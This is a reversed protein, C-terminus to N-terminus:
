GGPAVCCRILNEAPAVLLQLDKETLVSPTLKYWDIIRLARELAGDNDGKIWLQRAEQLQQYLQKLFQENAIEESISPGREERGPLRLCCQHYLVRADISEPDLTQVEKFDNLAELYRGARYHSMGRRLAVVALQRRTIERQDFREMPELSQLRAAERAEEVLSNRSDLYAMLNAVTQELEDNRGESEELDLRLSALRAQLDEVSQSYESLTPLTQLQRTLALKDEERRAVSRWHPAVGILRGVEAFWREAESLRGGHSEILGLGIAARARLDSAASEDAYVQRYLDRAHTADDQLRHLIWARRLTQARSSSSSASSSATSAPEATQAAAGIEFVLALAAALGCILGHRRKM